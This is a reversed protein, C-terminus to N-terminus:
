GIVQNRLNGKLLRVFQIFLIVDLTLDRPTLLGADTSSPLSGSGTNGYNVSIAEGKGKLFKWPQASGQIQSAFDKSKLIWREGWFTLQNFAISEMEVLMQRRLMSKCTALLQVQTQYYLFCEGAWYFDRRQVCWGEILYSWNWLIAEQTGLYPATIQFSHCTDQSVFRLNHNAMEHDTPSYNFQILRLLVKQPREQGPRGM